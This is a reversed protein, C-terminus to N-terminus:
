NNNEKTSQEKQYARIQQVVGAISFAALIAIVGFIAYYIDKPVHRAFAFIYIDPIAFNILTYIGYKQAPKMQRRYLCVVLRATSIGYLWSTVLDVFFFGIPNVGYKGLTKWVVFTAAFTYLVITSAWLREWFTERKSRAM